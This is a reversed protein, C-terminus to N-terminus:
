PYQSTKAPSREPPELQTTQFLSEVSTGCNSDIGVSIKRYQLIIVIPHWGAQHRTAYQESFQAPHAKLVFAALYKKLEDPAIGTLTLVPATQLYNPPVNSGLKSAALM